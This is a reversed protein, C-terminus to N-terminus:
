DAYRLRRLGNVMARGGFVLLVGLILQFLAVIVGILPEGTAPTLGITAYIKSSQM